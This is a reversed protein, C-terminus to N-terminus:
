WDIAYEAIIRLLVLPLLLLVDKPLRSLLADSEKSIWEKELMENPKFTALFAQRADSSSPYKDLYTSPDVQKMRM